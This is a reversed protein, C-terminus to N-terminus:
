FLPINKELAKIREEDWYLLYKKIENFSVKAKDTKELIRKIYRDNKIYRIIEWNCILLTYQNHNKDVGNLIYLM